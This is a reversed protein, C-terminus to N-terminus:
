EKQWEKRDRGDPKGGLVIDVGRGAMNTAVTVAGLRGAQAVIYAEKEHQKANLVEHKIGKRKMMDSLKESKEVSVTGILIPRGEKHLEEVEKVVQNFKAPENKYIKDIFDMDQLFDKWDDDYEVFLLSIEKKM